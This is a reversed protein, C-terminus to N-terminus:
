SMPAAFMSADIALGARSSVLAAFLKGQTPAVADLSLDGDRSEIRLDDWSAKCGSIDPYPVVRLVTPKGVLRSRLVAVGKETAAFVQAAPYVFRGRKRGVAVALVEGGTAQEAHAVTNRQGFVTLAMPLLIGAILAEFIVAWIRDDIAGVLALLIFILAVLGIAGLILGLLM